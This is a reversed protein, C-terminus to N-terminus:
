DLRLYAGFGPAVVPWQDSRQVSNIGRALLTAARIVGAHTIWASPQGAARTEAWVGAVRDMLEQVSERGGFRWHGFQATWQDIAARPIEDWRWGEWCGFDMEVLRADASARLDPRLRLLEETLQMGRRLPSSLIRAAQPLQRALELASARTAAQDAAMDTAGYCIGAEVLPQAHRVLWIAGVSAVEHAASGGPPAKAGQPPGAASLAGVSAENQPANEGRPPVVTSTDM